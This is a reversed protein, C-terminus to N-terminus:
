PKYGTLEDFISNLKMAADRVNQIQENTPKGGNKIADLANAIEFLVVSMTITTGSIDGKTALSAYTELNIAM